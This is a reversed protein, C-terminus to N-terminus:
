LWFLECPLWNLWFLLLWILLIGCNLLIIILGFWCCFPSILKSCCFLFEIKLLLWWLFLKLWFLSIFWSLLPFLSFLKFLLLITVCFALSLGILFLSSSFSSKLSSISGKAPLLSTIVCITGGFFLSSLLFSTWNLEILSFSSSFSSPFSM